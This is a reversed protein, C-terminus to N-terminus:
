DKAIKRQIDMVDGALSKLPKKEKEIIEKRILQQILHRWREQAEEEETKIKNKEMSKEIKLVM